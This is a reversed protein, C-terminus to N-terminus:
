TDVDAAGHAVSRQERALVINTGLHDVTHWRVLIDDRNRLPSEVYEVDKPMLTAYQNSVLVRTDDLRGVVDTHSIGVVTLRTVVRPELEKGLVMPVHGISDAPVALSEAATVQSGDVQVQSARTVLHYMHGSTDDLGEFLERVGFTNGDVQCVAITPIPMTLSTCLTPDHGEACLQAGLTEPMAAVARVPDTAM